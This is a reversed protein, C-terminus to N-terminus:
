IRILIGLGFNLVTINQREGDLLETFKANANFYDVNWQLSTKASIHYRLGVGLNKALTTSTEGQNRFIGIFSSELITAVSYGIEAKIDINLNKLPITYMPGIIIGGYGWVKGILGNADTTELGNANGYWAGSIGFNNKLVYAAQVLKIHIGTNAFGVPQNSDSNKSAFSGTPVAIGISAGIYSRRKKQEQGFTVQVIFVQILLGWIIYM